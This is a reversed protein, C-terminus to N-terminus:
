EGQLSDISPPFPVLEVQVAHALLLPFSARKWISAGVLRKGKRVDYRIYMMRVTSFKAVTRSYEKARIVREQSM